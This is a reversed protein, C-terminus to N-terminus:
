IMVLNIDSSVNDLPSTISIFMYIFYAIMRYRHSCVLITDIAYVPVLPMCHMTYTYMFLTDGCSTYCADPLTAFDVPLMITSLMDPITVFM